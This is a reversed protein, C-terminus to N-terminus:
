VSVLLNGQIRTGFAPSMLNNGLQIGRTHDTQHAGKSTNTLGNQSSFAYTPL